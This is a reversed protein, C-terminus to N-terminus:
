DEDEVRMIKAGVSQLKGVIDDYGRDIFQVDQITTEGEAVLAGIILAAGGRLDPAQVTMGKLERPGSVMAMKGNVTIDAGM